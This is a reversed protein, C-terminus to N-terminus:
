RCFIDLSMTFPGQVAGKGSSRDAKHERVVDLFDLLILVVDSVLKAGNNSILSLVDNRKIFCDSGKNARLVVKEEGVKSTKFMEFGVEERKKKKKTMM